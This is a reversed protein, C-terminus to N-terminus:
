QIPDAGIQLAIVARSIVLKSGSPQYLFPPRARQLILSNLAREDAIQIHQSLTSGFHYCFCVLDHASVIRLKRVDRNFDRQSCHGCYRRLRSLFPALWCSAVPYHEDSFKGYTVQGAPRQWGSPCFGNSLRSAM